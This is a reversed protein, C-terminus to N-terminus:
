RDRREQNWMELMSEARAAVRQSQWFGLPEARAADQSKLYEDMKPFPHKTFVLTLGNEVMSKGIDQDYNEGRLITALLRGEEDVRKEVLQIQVDQGVVESELFDVAVKGYEALMLDRESAEFSKIGLIRVLTSGRSNRIRIEDGDIARTVTVREGDSFLEPHNSLTADRIQQIQVFYIVAVLLLCTSFVNLYNRAFFSWVRRFRNTQPM